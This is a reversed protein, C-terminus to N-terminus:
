FDDLNCCNRWCIRYSISNAKFQFGNDTPEEYLRNLQLYEKRIIMGDIIGILSYIVLLGPITLTGGLLM